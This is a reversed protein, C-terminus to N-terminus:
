QAIAIVVGGSPNDGSVFPTGSTMPTLLGTGTGVTFGDINDNTANIAYAFKSLPDFTFAIPMGGGAPTITSGNVSLAGNVASITRPYIAASSQGTVYFFSNTADVFGGLLSAAAAFPSGSIGSLAGTVATIAFGEVTGTGGEAVYLYKSDRSLTVSTCASVGTNAIPVLAGTAATITYSQVSNSLSNCVFLFEGNASAALNYSQTGSNAFPSGSLGTLAGTTTDMSFGAVAYSGGNHSVYLRSSGNLTSIAVGIPNAIGTAYPSGSVETLVGTEKAISFASVTNANFNPVYLFKGSPDVAIDFPRDGSTFPSGPVATLHGTTQDIKYASINDSNQNPVFLYNLYITSAGDGGATSSRDAPNLGPGCSPFPFVLCFSLVLFGKSPMKSSNEIHMVM